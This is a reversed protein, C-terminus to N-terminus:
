HKLCTDVNQWTCVDLGTHIVPPVTKGQAIEHMVMAAKYGIEEPRQGVLVNVKHDRLAQLEPGLTDASVIVFKGSKIRDMIPAVVQAYAQPAFLPWGGALLFADLGTPNATLTDQMMQNAKAADDNSYLPCASLEHWGNEGALKAVGKKGSLADRAGQARQNINNAAPNGMVLCVNGGKPMLAKLQEGLKVGMEYNDTGVYTKRLSADKPLLDADATIIPIPSNRRRLVEAVAPANAPSIAISAVGKTLLDDIIQVQASEDAATAPGTYYCNFGQKSLEKNARECGQHMLDFFPNDLGKVVLALTKDAAFAASALMALSGIAALCMWRKKM